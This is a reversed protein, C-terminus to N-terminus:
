NKRFTLKYVIQAAKFNDYNLILVMDNEELKDVDLTYEGSNISINTDSNTLAWNGDNPFFSLEPLSMSYTGDDKFEAQDQNGLIRSEGDVELGTINWSGILLDRQTTPVPGDDDTGGDKCAVFLLVLSCWIFLIKKM